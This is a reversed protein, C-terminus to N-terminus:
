YLDYRRFISFVIERAENAVDAHTNNQNQLEKIIIKEVEDAVEEIINLMIGDEVNM